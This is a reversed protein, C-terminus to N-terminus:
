NEQLPAEIRAVTLIGLFGFVIAAALILALVRGDAPVPDTFLFMPVISAAAARELATAWGSVDPGIADHLKLLYGSGGVTVIGVLWLVGASYQPLAVTTAWAVASTYALASLAAPWLGIPWERRVAVDVLTVGGWVILGPAQSVAAHALAVISPPHAVLVPDFHGRRARARYGTAAAFMQFVLALAYM